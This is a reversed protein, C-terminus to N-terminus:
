GLLTLGGGALAALPPPSLVMRAFARGGDPAASRLSATAGSASSPAVATPRRRARRLSAVGYRGRPPLGVGGVFHSPTDVVCLVYYQPHLPYDQDLVKKSSSTHTNVHPHWGGAIRTLFGM